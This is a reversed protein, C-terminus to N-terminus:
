AALPAARARALARSLRALMIPDAHLRVREVGRVRLFALGYCQGVTRGVIQAVADAAITVRGRETARTLHADDM